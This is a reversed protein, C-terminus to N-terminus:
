SGPIADFLTVHKSENVRASNENQQALRTHYHRQRLLTFARRSLLSYAM